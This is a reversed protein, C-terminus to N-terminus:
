ISRYCKEFLLLRFVDLFIKESRIIKFGHTDFIDIFDTIRYNYEYVNKDGMLLESLYVLTKGASSGHNPQILLVYRRSIRMLHKAYPEFNLFHELMGDSSVLDFQEDINAVDKLTAKLGKKECVAVAEPSIDIGCCDYGVDQFVQLTHGLGCGVEVVTKVQIDKMVKKLIEKKVKFMRRGLFTLREKEHSGEWRKDWVGAIQSDIKNMM